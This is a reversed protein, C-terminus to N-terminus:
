LEVNFGIHQIIGLLDRIFIKINNNPKRVKRNDRSQLLQVGSDTLLPRYGKINITFQHRGSSPQHPCGSYTATSSLPDNYYM